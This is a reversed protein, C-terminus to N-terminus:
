IQVMRDRMGQSHRSAQKVWAPARDSNTVSEPDIFISIVVFSKGSIPIFFM